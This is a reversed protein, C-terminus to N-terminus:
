YLHRLLLQESALMSLRNVDPEGQLHRDVRQQRARTLLNHAEDHRDQALYTHAIGEILFVDLHACHHVPANGWDGGASWANVIDLASFFLRQAQKSDGSALHIAGLTRLGDAYIPMHEFNLETLIDLARQTTQLARDHERTATYLSALGLLSCVSFTSKQLDADRLARLAQGLLKSADDFQRESVRVEALLLLAVVSSSVAAPSRTSDRAMASIARNLHVRGQAFDLMDFYAEGLALRVRTESDTTDKSCPSNADVLQNCINRFSGDDVHNNGGLRSSNNNEMDHLASTFITVREHAPTFYRMVTSAHSLFSLLAHPGTTRALKLTARMNLRETDYLRMASHRDHAHSSLTRADLGHLCRTYYNIFRQHAAAAATPPSTPIIARMVRNLIYRDSSLRTALSSDVLPQLCNTEFTSPDMVPLPAAVALAAGVSFSDDFLILYPLAESATRPLSAIRPDTQNHTNLLLPASSSSTSPVGLLQQLAHEEDVQANRPPSSTNQPLFSSPSFPENLRNSRLHQQQNQSHSSPHPHQIHSSSPTSAVCIPPPIVDHVVSSVTPAASLAACNPVSPSLSFSSLAPRTPPLSGQAPPNAACSDALPTLVPPPARLFSSAHVQMSSSAVAPLSPLSLSPFSFGSPPPLPPTLPAPDSRNISGSLPPVATTRFLSTGAASSSAVADADETAQMQRLHKKRHYSRNQRIRRKLVAGKLRRENESLEADPKTFVYVPPRGPRRKPPLSPPPAQPNMTVAQM